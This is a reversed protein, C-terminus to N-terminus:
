FVPVAVDGPSWTFGFAIRYSNKRSVSQIPLDQRRYLITTNVGFSRFFKYNASGGSFYTVFDGGVDNSISNIRSATTTFGFSLKRDAAYSFNLNANDAVSLLAIGNGGAPTRAYGGSLTTRRTRTILHASYMARSTVRSYSEIIQTLGLLRQIIPDAAIIRSGASDSRFIGGSVELSTRRSLDYGIVANGMHVDSEGFARPYDFHQFTYIGGVHLRRSVRYSVGGRPMWGNVGVLQGTSRRVAFADGGVVYSVRASPQYTASAGGQLFYVRNDFVENVPLTNAFANGIVFNGFSFVRNSTGATLHGELSVRRTRQVRYDMGLFHDSGSFTNSQPYHRITGRYDMGLTGRRGLNKVGFAGLGIELGYLAGPNELNGNADLQYPVLGTDYVGSADVSLRVRAQRGAREGYPRSATGAGRSLIAPGDYVQAWLSSSM